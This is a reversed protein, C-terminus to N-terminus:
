WDFRSAPVRRGSRSGGTGDLLGTIPTIRGFVNNGQITRSSSASSTPRGEPDRQPREAQREDYYVPDYLPIPFVRPSPKM